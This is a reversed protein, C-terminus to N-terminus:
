GNLYILEEVKYHGLLLFFLGNIIMLNKVVNPLHSFRQGIMQQIKQIENIKLNLFTSLGYPSVSPTECNMLEDILIEM